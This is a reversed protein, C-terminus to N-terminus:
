GLSKKSGSSKFFAAKIVDETAAKGHETLTWTRTKVIDIFGRRKLYTRAWASNYEVESQSTKEHKLDLVAESLGLDKEIFRNIERVSATVGASQIAKVTPWCLELRSPLGPPAKRVVHM